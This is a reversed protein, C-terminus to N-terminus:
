SRLTVKNVVRLLGARHRSRMQAEPWIRDPRCIEDRSRTKHRAVVEAEEFLHVHQLRCHRTRDEQEIRWIGRRFDPLLQRLCRLLFHKGLLNLKIDDISVLYRTFCAHTRADVGDHLGTEKCDATHKRAFFRNLLDLLSNLFGVALTTFSNYLLIKDCHICGQSM